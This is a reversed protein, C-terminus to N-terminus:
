SKPANGSSMREVYNKVGGLWRWEGMAILRLILPGREKEVGM